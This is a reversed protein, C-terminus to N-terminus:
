ELIGATDKFNRCARIAGTGHMRKGRFIGGANGAVVLVCVVGLDKKQRKRCKDNMSPNQCFEQDKQYLHNYRHNSESANM